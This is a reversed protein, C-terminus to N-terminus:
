KLLDKRVYLGLEDERELMLHYNELLYAELAPLEFRGILVQEPQYTKVTDLIEDETLEGAAFRKWSIVALDPPVPIGAQFAFMPMDTVMWHTQAAYQDIKRAVKDEFAPRPMDTDVSQARFVAAAQPARTGLVLLIGIVGGGLWLWTRSQAM